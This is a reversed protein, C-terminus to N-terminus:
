AVKGEAFDRLHTVSYLKRKGIQKSKLVGRKELDFITRRSVGLLASATKEDVLLPELAGLGSGEDEPDVTDAWTEKMAAEKGLYSRADNMRLREKREFYRHMQQDVLSQLYKATAGSGSVPRLVAFVEAELDPPIGYNEVVQERSLILNFTMVSYTTTRHQTM